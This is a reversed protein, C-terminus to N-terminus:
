CEGTQIPVRTIKPPTFVRNGIAVSAMVADLLKYYYRQHVPKGYKKITVRWRNGKKQVYKIGSISNSYVRKNGNNDPKTVARLNSRRNDLTDKSMHDVVLGEPSDM